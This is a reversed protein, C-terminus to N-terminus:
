LYCDELVDIDAWLARIRSALESAQFLDTWPAVKGQFHLWRTMTRDIVVPGEAYIDDGDFEARRLLRHGAPARYAGIQCEVGIYHEFDRPISPHARRLGACVLLVDATAPAARYAAFAPAREDYTTLMDAADPWRSTADQPEVVDQRGYRRHIAPGFTWPGEVYGEAALAWLVDIAEVDSEPATPTVYLNIIVGM